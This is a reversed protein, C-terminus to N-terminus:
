GRNPLILFEHEEDNEKRRWTSRKGEEWAPNLGPMGGGRIIEIMEIM